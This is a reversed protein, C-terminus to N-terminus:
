CYRQNLDAPSFESYIHQSAPYNRKPLPNAWCMFSFPLSQVRKDLTALREEEWQRPKFLFLASCFLFHPPSLHEMRDGVGIRNGLKFAHPAPRRTIPIIGPLVGCQPQSWLLWLHCRERYIKREWAHCLPYPLCPMTVPNGERWGTGPDSQSSIAGEVWSVSTIGSGFADCRSSIPLAHLTPEFHNAKPGAAKLSSWPHLPIELRDILHLLEVPIIFPGDKPLSLFFIIPIAFHQLKVYFEFM